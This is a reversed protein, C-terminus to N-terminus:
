VAYPTAVLYLDNKREVIPGFVETMDLEEPKIGHPIKWDFHYLVHALPLELNYVGFLLGPCMRRGAGFPTYEFNSGKFDISSESFREPIFSEPNEWYEPDRGIAWVNVFLKTKIPIKYGNIESQQRSERPFLLPAPPHLRLTEKIVLKLYSLEQIDAESIEKKGKLKERAETQAKNLVRPNRMMESMAWTATIASTDTGAAFMGPIASVSSSGHISEVLNWAEEERLSSFSQVRRTSLLELVCVKKMQRWYDGYPASIIDTGADNPLMKTVLLEPRQAFMLDHTKLVQEAMKPSSVVVISMKGLKLHMLPGYKKALDGLARHHLKHGILNHLNGILPLKPPGPPLQGINKTHSKAIEGSRCGLLTKFLLVLFPLFITLSFFNHLEM